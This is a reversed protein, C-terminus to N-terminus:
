KMQAYVKHLINFTETPIPIELIYLMTFFYELSKDM